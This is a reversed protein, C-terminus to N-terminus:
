RQDNRRWRLEFLVADEKNQFHYTQQGFMETMMWRASEDSAKRFYDSPGFNETAWAYMKPKISYYNRSFTLDIVNNGHSM